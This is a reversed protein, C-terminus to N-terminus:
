DHSDDCAAAAIRSTYEAGCGVCEHLPIPPVYVPTLGLSIRGSREDLGRLRAKVTLAVFSTLFSRLVGRLWAWSPRWSGLQALGLSLRRGVSGHGRGAARSTM